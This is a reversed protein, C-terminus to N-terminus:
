NILVLYFATSIGGSGAIVLCIARVIYLVAENDNQRFFQLAHRLGRIGLGETRLLPKPYVLCYVEVVYNVHSSYLLENYWVKLPLRQGPKQGFNILEKM